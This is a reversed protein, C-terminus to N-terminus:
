PVTRFSLVLPGCVRAVSPNRRYATCCAVLRLSPHNFSEIFGAVPLPPVQKPSEPPGCKRPAPAVSVSMTTDTVDWPSVHHREVSQVDRTSVGSASEKMVPNM